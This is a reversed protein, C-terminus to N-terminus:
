RYNVLLQPATNVGAQIPELPGINPIRVRPDLLCSGQIWCIWSGASLTQGRALVM